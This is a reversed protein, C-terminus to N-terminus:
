NILFRNFIWPFMPQAGDYNFHYQLVLFNLLILLLISKRMLNKPFEKAAWELSVLVVPFALTLMRTFDYSIIVLSFVGALISVLVLCQLYQKRTFCWVIMCLPLIWWLKFTYFEAAPLYEFKRLVFLINGSNLYFSVDYLPDSYYNVMLRYIFHPLLSLAYAALATKLRRNRFYSLLVLGPLVALSSEHNLLALSFFLASIRIKDQRIFALFIFLWTVIDTYGPSILPILVVSSFSIFCAAFFGEIPPLANRRYCFYVLAVFIWCTLLPLFIFLEGRLFFIYGLSPALIRYQLPDNSTFDFPALSIRSYQEGHFVPHFSPQVYIM